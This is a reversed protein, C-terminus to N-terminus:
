RQLELGLEIDVLYPVNGFAGSNRFNALPSPLYWRNQAYLQLERDFLYLSAKLHLSSSIDPLSLFYSFQLDLYDAINRLTAALAVVHQTLSFPKAFSKREIMGQWFLGQLPNNRDENYDKLGRLLRLLQQVHLASGDYRYEGYIDFNALPTWQLGLLGRFQLQDVDANQWSYRPFSKRNKKFSYGLALMNNKNLKGLKSIGNGLLGEAYIQFYQTRISFPLLGSAGIALYFGESWDYFLKEVAYGVLQWNSQGLFLSAELSLLQRRNRSELFSFTYEWTSYNHENADLINAQLPSDKHFRLVPMYRLRLAFSPLSLGLLLQWNNKAEFFSGSDDLYNLPNFYISVGQSYPQRGISLEIDTNSGQGLNAFISAYLQHFGFSFYALEPPISNSVHPNSAQDNSAKSYFNLVLNFAKREIGELSLYLLSLSAELDLELFLGLTRLNLRNDMNTLSTTRFVRGLTGLRNSLRTENRWFSKKQDPEDGIENEIDGFAASVESEEANDTFDLDPIAAFPDKIEMTEQATFGSILSLLGLSLLALFIGFSPRFFLAKRWFFYIIM